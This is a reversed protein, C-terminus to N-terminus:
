LVDFVFLSFLRFAVIPVFLLVSRGVDVDPLEYLLLPEVDPIPLVPEDVPEYLLEDVVPLLPMFEPVDVPEYLVVVVGPIFLLV